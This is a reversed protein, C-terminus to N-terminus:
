LGGISEIKTEYINSITCTIAIQRDFVTEINWIVYLM